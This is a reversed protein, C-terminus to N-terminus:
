SGLLFRSIPYVTHGLYWGIVDWAPNFSPLLFAAGLVILIGYRELSSYKRLAEGKLFWQVVRSGDLPPLPILNFFALVLNILTFFGVMYYVIGPLDFLTLVRFVIASAIALLINTIPGAIGTLLMGTQPNTKRMLMPNVPVPKAYGIAFGAVLFMLAPLIITGYIDVHALPNLTLRGANKATPDGLMYAVYGHSVEHLIIAPIILLLDLVAYLLQSQSM